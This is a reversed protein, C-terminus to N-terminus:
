DVSKGWPRTWHDREDGCGKQDACERSAVGDHALPAVAVDCGGHGVAFGAASAQPWDGPSYHPASEGESGSMSERAAGFSSGIVFLM